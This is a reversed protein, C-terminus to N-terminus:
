TAGERPRPGGLFWRWAAWAVDGSAGSQDSGVSPVWRGAYAEERLAAGPECTGCGRTLPWKEPLWARSGLGWVLLMPTFTVWPEMGGRYSSSRLSGKSWYSSARGAVELLMLTSCLGLLDSPPELAWGAEFSSLGRAWSDALPAM